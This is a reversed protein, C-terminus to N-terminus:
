DQTKNCKIFDYLKEAERLPFECKSLCAYKVCFKRLCHNYLRIFLEIM